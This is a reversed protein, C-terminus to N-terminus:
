QGHEKRFNKELIESNKVTRRYWSLRIQDMEQNTLQWSVSSAHLKNILTHLCLAVCVSINFSETFGFMPIRVTDHALELAEETLGEMETGFVLAVKEEIPIEPLEMGEAHPSTAYIRYGQDQLHRFCAATNSTGEENYRILDIWKSSGQTVNPNLIYQNRNEIIHLDQVGFCDCSRIVASANHPQFIDELAVTIHRTRHMLVREMTEKKAESIFGAFHELLLHDEPTM